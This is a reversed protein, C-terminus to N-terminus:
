GGCYEALAHEDIAPAARGNAAACAAPDVGNLVNASGTWAM